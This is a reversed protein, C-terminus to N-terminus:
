RHKAWTGELEMLLRIDFRGLFISIAMKDHIKTGPDKELGRM